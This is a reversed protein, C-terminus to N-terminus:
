KIENTFKWILLAVFRSFCLSLSLFFSYSACPTQQFPVFNSLWSDPPPFVVHKVPWILLTLSIILLSSKEFLSHWYKFAEPMCPLEHHSLNFNRSGGLDHEFCGPGSFYASSVFDTRCIGHFLIIGIGVTLFTMIQMWKYYRSGVSSLGATPETAELLFCILGM